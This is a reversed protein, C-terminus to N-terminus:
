RENGHYYGDDDWNDNGNMSKFVRKIFDWGGWVLLAGIWIIFILVIHIVGFDTDNM